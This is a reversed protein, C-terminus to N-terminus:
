QAKIEPIWDWGDPKEVYDNDDYTPQASEQVVVIQYKDGLDTKGDTNFETKAVLTGSTKEGEGNEGPKLIGKYYYWGDHEVWPSSADITMETPGIIQVRVVVNTEGTNKISVTKSNEDVNEEIETQGGLALVAKGQAATYDSFYAFTLGISISLVLALAIVLLRKSNVTKM